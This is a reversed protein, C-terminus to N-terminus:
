TILTSKGHEGRKKIFAMATDLDRINKESYLLMSEGIKVTDGDALDQEGSIRGGNVFVGNASQLDEVRCTKKDPDYHFELHRRSVMEDVVQLDCGEDRGVSAAGTGLVFYKGREKGSVIFISAM